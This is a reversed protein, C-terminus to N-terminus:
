KTKRRLNELLLIVGDESTENDCVELKFNWNKDAAELEERYSKGKPFVLRTQRTTFKFVYGLLKDLSAVARATIVDAPPLTLDETRKNLVTVNNLNLATKVENLYLTKKTISEILTFKMSPYQEQAMIALVLAPFGAGSGIDYVSDIQENLYKFLQASDAIHRQWVDPLSNNSVLNFKAQWENLLAVLQELKQYTERSVTYTDIFNKMSKKYIPL